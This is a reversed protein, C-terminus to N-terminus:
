IIRDGIAITTKCFHDFACCYGCVHCLACHARAIREIRGRTACAAGPCTGPRFQFGLDAALRSSAPSESGSGHTGLEVFPQQLQAMTRQERVWRPAYRKHELHEDRNSFKEDSSPNSM